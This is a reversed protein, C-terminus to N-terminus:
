QQPRADHVIKGGIITLVSRTEPLQAIPAAFIDRSLVTLDALRGKVLTGKDHEAFEAFASGLTYARVATELSVAEMPRSPHMSALMVNLFPNMPGDSGLAVPIGAEIYSRFAFFHTNPSYRAFIMEPPAFHTPNLVLVVGLRQARQVLDDTVGDAHEIRVRKSKWDVNGHVRQEM